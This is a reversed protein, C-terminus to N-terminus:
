ELAGTDVGAVLGFHLTIDTIRLEDLNHLELRWLGTPAYGELARRLDDPCCTM